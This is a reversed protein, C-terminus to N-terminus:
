VSEISVAQRLVASKEGSLFSRIHSEDIMENFHFLQARIWTAKQYVLEEIKEATTQAPATIMVGNADVSISVTKRRESWKITYPITDQGFQISYM